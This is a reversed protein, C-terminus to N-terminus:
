QSLKLPLLRVVVWHIRSSQRADVLTTLDEIPWFHARSAGVASGCAALIVSTDLFLIM